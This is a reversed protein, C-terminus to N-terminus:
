VTRVPEGATTDTKAATESSAKQLKVHNVVWEQQFSRQAGKIGCLRREVEKDSREKDVEEVEHGTSYAPIKEVKGKSEEHPLDNM